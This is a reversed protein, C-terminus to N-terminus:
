PLVGVAQNYAAIQRNVTIVAREHARRAAIAAEELRLLDMLDMEGADYATRGLKAHQATLTARRHNTELQAQAVELGHRAEHFALDLRRLVRDRVALATAAAAQADAVTTNAHATGSLPLTFTLGISDEYDDTLPPREWRPGILLSPSGRANRRVLDVRSRARELQAEAAALAPHMPTIEGLTSLPEVVFPPRTDIGALTQYQHEADVLLAEADVSMSEAALRASDALLVEGIAVDGLEHRRQVAAALQDLVVLNDQAARLEAEAAALDWFVQRLEGAVRWRLGSDATMAVAGMARAFTRAAKREGRRWLPLQLGGEYEELGDDAGWRDSQYRFSFSPTGAIRSASRQRWADAQAAQAPPLAAEPYRLVARDIVATLTLSDLEVVPEHLMPDHPGSQQTKAQPTQPQPSQSERLMPEHAADPKASAAGCLTLLLLFGGRIRSGNLIGGDRAPRM